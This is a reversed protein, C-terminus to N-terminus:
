YCIVTTTAAFMWYCGNAGNNINFKGTITTTGTSEPRIDDVWLRDTVTAQTSSSLGATIKGTTTIAGCDSTTLDACTIDAFDLSDDDITDDAIMEGDIKGSGNDWRYSGVYLGTAITTLTSSAYTATLKTMSDTTNLVYSDTIETTGICDTCTLDTASGNLTGWATTFTLLTTSANTTTLKTMTDTTNLVYIDEIETANLCNTCILDGTVAGTLNSWITTATMLTSSANNITLSEFTDVIQSEQIKRTELAYSFSFLGFFIAAILLIQLFIKM